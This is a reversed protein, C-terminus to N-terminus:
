RKGKLTAYAQRGGNEWNALMDAVSSPKQTSGGAAGQSGVGSPSAKVFHPNATLFESV